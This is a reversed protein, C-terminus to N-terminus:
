GSPERHIEGCVEGRRGARERGGRPAAAVRGPRRAGRAGAGKGLGGAVTPARSRPAIVKKRRWPRRPPRTAGGAGWRGPTEQGGRQPVGGSGWAREQGGRGWKRVRGDGTDGGVADGQAAPSGSHRSCLAAPANRQPARAQAPLLAVQRRHRRGRRFDGM